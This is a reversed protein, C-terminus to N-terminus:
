QNPIGALDLSHEFGPSDLDIVVHNPVHDVGLRDAGCERAAISGQV